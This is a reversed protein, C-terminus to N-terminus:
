LSIEHWTSGSVQYLKTNQELVRDIFLIGNLHDIEHQIIHAPFGSFVEQVTSLTLHEPDLKQFKVTVSLSRSIPAYHGPLSLCGEYVGSKKKPTQLAQSFKVIEPNIFLQPPQKPDPRILFLSLPIGIQPAALGVGEPNKAALLTETMDKIISLLRKDVATVPKTTQRLVPDPATVIPSM